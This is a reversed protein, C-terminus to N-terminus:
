LTAIRRQVLFFYFAVAVLLVGNVALVLPASFIPVLWGTALNGMPMGGRFAFNYISMVRGRMENTAILQVLSSVTAFVAMMAAVLLAGARVKFGALLMLGATLEVWPLVIAVINVLALPLIDYTAIDVAFNQPMAIKHWSAWVFLGGLYWRAPVALWSAVRELKM